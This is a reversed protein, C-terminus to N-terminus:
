DQGGVGLVVLYSNSYLPFVGEKILMNYVKTEDFTIIREKDFNRMNNNLEGENPLYEDSYINMPLKYDPYPYYFKYEKFGCEKIIKELENKSFTKVGNTNTYDEIGEFYRNIHDEQCGAWYKLGLKNEIALIIKGNEKLHSKIKNLFMEYPNKDSIYSEAYEFVGILTIYDYKETLNKEIDEFNGLLININSKEKNRHANILSRKESLEICTVSEAMDSLTGTIAGCGAGVELVTNEKTIPLWQIINSRIHSLHYIIPWKKRQAIIKNFEEKTHNKVIELLEDEIIGDSYLDVGSYNTYDLNVNGIKNNM